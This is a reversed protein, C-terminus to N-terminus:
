RVKQSHLAITNEYINWTFSAEEQQFYIEIKKPFILSEMFPALNEEILFFIWRLYHKKKEVPFVTIVRGIKQLESCINKEYKELLESDQSSLQLSSITQSLRELIKKPVVEFYQIEPSYFQNKKVSKTNSVTLWRGLEWKKTSKIFVKCLVFDKTILDLCQEGEAVSECRLLLGLNIFLIKKQLAAELLKNATFKKKVLDFINDKATFDIKLYEKLINNKWYAEGEILVCIHPEILSEIKDTVTYIKQAKKDRCFFIKQQCSPCILPLFSLMIKVNQSRQILTIHRSPM